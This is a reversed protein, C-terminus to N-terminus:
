VRFSRETRVKAQLWTTPTSVLYVLSACEMVDAIQSSDQSERIAHQLHSLQLDSFIKQAKGWSKLSLRSSLPQVKISSDNYLTFSFLSAIKTQTLSVKVLGHGHPRCGCGQQQQQMSTLVTKKLNFYVIVIRNCHICQTM